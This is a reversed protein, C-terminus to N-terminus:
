PNERGGPIVTPTWRPPNPDRLMKVLTRGMVFDLNPNKAGRAAEAEDIATPLEDAFREKSIVDADAPVSRNYEERMDMDPMFVRTILPLGWRSVQVEPAHGYLSTTAWAHV